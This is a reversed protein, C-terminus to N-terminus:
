IRASGLNQDTRTQGLKKMKKSSQQDYSHDIHGDFNALTKEPSRFWLQEETTHGIRNILPNRREQDDQSIEPWSPKEIKIPDTTKYPHYVMPIPRGIKIFFQTFTCM